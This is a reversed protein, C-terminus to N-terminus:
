ISAFPPARSSRSTSLFFGVPFVLSLSFSFVTSTNPENQWASSAIDIPARKGLPDDGFLALIFGLEPHNLAHASLGIVELTPSANEPSAAYECSLDSSFVTHAIGHHVHGPVDHRHDAEPHVHFLPLACMWLTLWTLLALYSVGSPFTRKKMPFVKYTYIVM